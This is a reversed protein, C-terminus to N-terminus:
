VSIRLKRHKSMMTKFTEAPVQAVERMAAATNAFSVPRTATPAFLLGAAFAAAAEKSATAATTTAAAPAHEARAIELEDQQRQDLLLRAV